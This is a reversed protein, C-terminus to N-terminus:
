RHYKALPSMMEPHETIFTPHIINDELFHGVMKDLLRVVTRPESCKIQHEICLSPIASTNYPDSLWFNKECSKSQFSGNHM